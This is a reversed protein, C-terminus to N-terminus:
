KKLTLYAFAMQLGKIQYQIYERLQGYDEHAYKLMASAQGYISPLNSKKMLYYGDLFSKIGGSIIIQKCLIEESETVIKNIDEVMQEATNGINSLPQLMKNAIPNSRKLEVKSFNTGGYAALEIAELPLKLLVKLSEPGFGQGVEKVIVKLNTQSLFLKITDIPPHLLTEGEPQIWEQLPNVHIVLGDARLKAVLDIIEQLKNQHVAQEIQCIGLNAYFPYDNGIVDRLDYHDLYKDSELLTRCSGLGMGLGYENCAKALNTNITKAYDTGGTMSSISLPIKMTKGLFKIGLGDQKPHPNLLPEYNFRNDHENVISQSNLALEIHDKKRKEM